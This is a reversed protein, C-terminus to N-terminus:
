KNERAVVALVRKINWDDIRKLEGVTVSLNEIKEKDNADIDINLKNRVFELTGHLCNGAKLSHEIKVEINDDLEEILKEDRIASIDNKIKLRIKEEVEDLLNSSFPHYMFMYEYVRGFKIKVMRVVSNYSSVFTSVFDDPTELIEKSADILYTDKKIKKIAVHEPLKLDKYCRKELFERAVDALTDNDNICTKYKVVKGNRIAIFRNNLLYTNRYAIVGTDSFAMNFSHELKISSNCCLDRNVLM